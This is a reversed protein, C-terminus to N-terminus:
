IGLWYNVKLLFINSSPGQFLAGADGGFDIDGRTLESSGSRTWVLFLTSGPRYEWRLVANGRLSRLTFTPDTILFKPSPGPGDPDIWHQKPAGAPVSDSGVDVGYVLKRLQRPAAFERYGSYAASALLPQMYLELTLVPSFTVNFRTEMAVTKEVLQAFVYRNGYFARAFTDPVTQVYQAGNEARSFSPGLTLQV